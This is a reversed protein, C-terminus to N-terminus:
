RRAIGIIGVRKIHYYCCKYRLTLCTPLRCSFVHLACQIVWHISRLLMGLAIGRITSGLAISSITSPFYTIGIGRGVFGQNLSNLVLGLLHLALPHLTSKQPLFQM